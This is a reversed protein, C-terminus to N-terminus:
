AKLQGLLDANQGKLVQVGKQRDLLTGAYQRIFRQLIYLAIAILVLAVVCTGEEAWLIEFRHIQKCQTAPTTEYKYYDSPCGTSNNCPLSLCPQYLSFRDSAPVFHATTWEYVKAQLENM